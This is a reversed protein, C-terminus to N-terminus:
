DNDVKESDEVFLTLEIGLSKARKTPKTLSRLCYQENLEREDMVGIFEGNMLVNYRNRKSSRRGRNARSSNAERSMIRLNDVCNNSRNCDIHDITMENPIPEVWTEYCVRHTRRFKRKHIGDEIISFQAEVYGDKDYKTNVM